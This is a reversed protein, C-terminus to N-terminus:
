PKVSASMSRLIKRSLTSPRSNAVIRSITAIRRAGIALREADLEHVDGIRRLLGPDLLADFARVLLDGEGALALARDEVLQDLGFAELFEEVDLVGAGLAEAEVAAFDSIGASSCIMLRPPSSPTCPSRREAHRMAAPEVHQRLHHALRVARDEVLELAARRRGVLDFARAVHLIVEAGRRVALEVAVLHMQRQGGVRRMELDDIRHHEALHAGLLVLVARRRVVAGHHHRQQDM